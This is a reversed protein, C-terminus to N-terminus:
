GRHSEFAKQYGEKDVVTITIAGKPPADGQDAQSNSSADVAAASNKAPRQRDNSCGGLAVTLAALLVATAYDIYRFPAM